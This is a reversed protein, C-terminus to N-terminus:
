QALLKQKAAQFEADSLIGQKHLDAISALQESLSASMGLLPAGQNASSLHREIVDHIQNAKEEALSATYGSFSGRSYLTIEAPFEADKFSIKLKVTKIETKQNKKATVGGIIAGVGGFLSGVVARGVISGLSTKTTTKDDVEVSIFLIEDFPRYYSFEKDYIMKIIKNNYDIAYKFRDVNKLEEPLTCKEALAQQRECNAYQEAQTLGSRYFM